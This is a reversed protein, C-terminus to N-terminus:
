LHCKNFNNKYKLYHTFLPTNFKSVKHLTDPLYYVLNDPILCMKALKNDIIFKLAPQDKNGKYSKELIKNKWLNLFRESKNRKVFIIGANYTFKKSYWMDHPMYVDCSENWEEIQSFFNIVPKNVKIDSDLFLIYDETTNKLINMKLIKSELPSRTVNKQKLIITNNIEPTCPDSYIYINRKWRGKKKLTRILNNANYGGTAITIIGTNKELKYNFAFSYVLNILILITVQM